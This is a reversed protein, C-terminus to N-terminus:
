ICHMTVPQVTTKFIHMCDNGLAGWGCILVCCKLTWGTKSDGWEMYRYHHNTKNPIQYVKIIIPVARIYYYTSCLRHFLATDTQRDTHKETGAHPGCCSSRAWCAPSISRNICCRRAAPPAVNDTKNVNLQINVTDRKAATFSTTQQLFWWCSNNCVGLCWQHIRM